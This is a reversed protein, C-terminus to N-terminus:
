ERGYGSTTREAYEGSVVGSRWQISVKGKVALDVQGDCGLIMPRPDLMAGTADASM